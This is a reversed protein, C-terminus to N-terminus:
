SIVVHNILGLFAHMYKLYSLFKHRQATRDTSMTCNYAYVPAQKQLLLEGYLIIILIMTIDNNSNKNYYM